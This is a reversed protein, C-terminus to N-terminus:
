PLPRDSRLEPDLAPGASVEDPTWPPFSVCPNSIGPRLLSRAGAPSSGWCADGSDFTEDADTDVEAISVIGDADYDGLAIEQDVTFQGYPEFRNREVVRGAADTLATVNWNADQHAFVLGDPLKMAVVEDIYRTGHYVQQVLNESGDRVEIVQWHDYFYLETGDLDGSNTVAKKV